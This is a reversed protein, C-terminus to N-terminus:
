TTLRRHGPQTARVILPGSASFAISATRLAPPGTGMTSNVPRILPSASSTRCAISRSTPFKASTSSKSWAVPSMTTSRSGETRSPISRASRGPPRGASSTTSPVGRPRAPPPSRRDVVEARQEQLDPWRAASAGAPCAREELLFTSRKRAAAKSGSGFHSTSSPRSAPRPGARLLRARRPGASSARRPPPPRCASRAPARTSPRSTARRDAPLGTRRREEVQEPGLDAQM